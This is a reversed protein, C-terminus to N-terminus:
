VVSKRDIDPNPYNSLQGKEVFEAWMYEGTNQCDFIAQVCVKSGIVQHAAICCEGNLANPDTSLPASLIVGHFEGSEVKTNLSAKTFVKDWTVGAANGERPVAPKWGIMNQWTFMISVEVIKETPNYANWKFVAVPFSTERYNHPIIPSFQTCQLKVPFKKHEYKTWAKPYLTHYTAAGAPYGWNWGSLPSEEPLKTTSLVTAFVKDEQKIKQRVSFQCAPVTEFIHQGPILHWVNFDGEPARGITGAGLGGLPMGHPYTDIMPFAAKSRLRKVRGAEGFRHQYAEKPIKPFQYQRM